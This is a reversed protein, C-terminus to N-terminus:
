QLKSFKQSKNLYKNKKLNQINKPVEAFVNKAIPSKKGGFFDSFAM